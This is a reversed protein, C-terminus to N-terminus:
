IDAVWDNMLGDQGHGKQRNFKDGNSSFSFSM